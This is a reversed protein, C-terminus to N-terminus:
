KKLMVARWAKLQDHGQEVLNDMHALLEEWTMVGPTSDPPQFGECNCNPYAGVKKCMDECAGALKSLFKARRQQDLAVCSPQSAAIQLLTAAKRWGKLQGQGWEVLNDMHDNLEDWTMVGPTADPAVYGECHECSANIEKCMDECAGHLKAQVKQRVSADRAECAKEEGSVQIASSAHKAAANWAKLKDHGQQVLNDMHDLLEPWTMVGPTEDPKKFNACMQCNPYAGVEKCMEECAGALRSQVHARYQQDATICARETSGAVQLQSAENNWTNAEGHAWGYLEDMRTLLEPWTVENPTEDHPTLNTCQPCDPYKGVEKCMTECSGELKHLLNARISAETGLCSTYGSRLQLAAAPIATSVFGFVLGRVM